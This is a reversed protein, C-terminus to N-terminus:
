MANHDGISISKSQSEAGLQAAAMCKKICSAKKGASDALEGAKKKAASADAAISDGARDAMEGAKKKFTVAGEKMKKGAKSLGKKAAAAKDSFWGDADCDLEGECELDLEGESDLDVDSDVELESDLQGMFDECVCEDDEIEALVTESFDSDEREIYVAHTAAVMFAAFLPLRMM